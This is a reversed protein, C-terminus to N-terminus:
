PFTFTWNKILHVKHIHVHLCLLGAVFTYMESLM